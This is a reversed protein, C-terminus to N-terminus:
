APVASIELKGTVAETILAQRYEHLRAIHRRNKELLPGLRSDADSIRDIIRCQEEVPPLAIKLSVYESASLNAQSISPIARARAQALFWESNFLYTAFHPLMSPYFRLRVLYSAFGVTDEQLEILAAKGVLDWSNTRNYVIDGDRLLLDEPYEDVYKLDELSLRGDQLNNMRLVAVSGSPQLSESIGYSCTRTVRRLQLVKWHAPVAGLWEVGSDRMPANPDLGKTVAQTILAQRKEQLLEILREKKAILADIAATKKELFDAIACQQGIPPVPVILDKITAYRFDTSRERIGRALSSIYGTLALHRLIAAYFRADSIGRKPLCVSYVPSCKGDSESVGIAGAFGDMGHIVLDGKRVGQYGIEKVAFTFGEERRSSRLTVQGDRFATVM